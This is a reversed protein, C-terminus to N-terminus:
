GDCEKGEDGLPEELRNQLLDQVNSEPEEVVYTEKEEVNPGTEEM